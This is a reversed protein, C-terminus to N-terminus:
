YIFFFVFKQISKLRTYVHSISFRSSSFRLATSNVSMCVYWYGNIGCTLILSVNRIERTIISYSNLDWQIRATRFYAWCTHIMLKLTTRRNFSSFAPYIHALSQKEGTSSSLCHKYLLSITRQLFSFFLSFLAVFSILKMKIVRWNM